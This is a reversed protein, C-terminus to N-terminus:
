KINMAVETVRACANLCVILGEEANRAWRTQVPFRIHQFREMPWGSHAFVEYLKVLARQAKRAEDRGRLAFERRIFPGLYRDMPTPGCLTLWQALTEQDTLVDGPDADSSSDNQVLAEIVGVIKLAVLYEGFTKHTFEFTKDGEARRGQQRFYFALLLTSISGSAGAEFGPLMSAIGSQRCGDEIERLTTTRGQGHWVALAVEELFRVFDAKSVERVAPHSHRSWGREYVAGLLSDYIANISTESSVELGRQFSLAVLYNLLPQATIEGLEGARFTDPMSMYDRGTLRGYKQWWVDRQDEKLLQKPDAFERQQQGGIFYPLLQIIHGPRQFHSEVSQVALERGAVIAQIRCGHSNMVALSRVADEVFKQAIEQVGRGQMELEDLGDLALVLPDDVSALTIPNKPFFGEALIFEELSSLFGTQLNLLHLPIYLTKM